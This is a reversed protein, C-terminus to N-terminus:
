KKTFFGTFPTSAPPSGGGQGGEPLPTKDGSPGPSTVEGAAPPERKLSDGSAAFASQIEKAIAKALPTYTEEPSPQIPPEFVEEYPSTPDYDDGVEFDDAEEFTELGSERAARRLAEGQIMARMTEALTPQKIFGLPPAVPTPDPYEKGGRMLDTHQPRVRKLPPAEEPIIKTTNKAM